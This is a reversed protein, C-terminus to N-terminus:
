DPIVDGASAGTVVVRYVDRTAENKAQIVSGKAGAEMARAVTEVNGQGVRVSVSIFDGKAVIAPATLDTPMIVEGAKLERAALQGIAVNADTVASPHREEVLVRKSALDM